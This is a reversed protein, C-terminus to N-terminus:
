SIFRMSFSRGMGNVLSPLVDNLQMELLQLSLAEDEALGAAAVASRELAQAVIGGTTQLQLSREFNELAIAQITKRAGKLGDKIQRVM